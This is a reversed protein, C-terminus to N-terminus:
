VKLMAKYIYQKYVSKRNGFTWSNDFFPHHPFWISCLGIVLLDLLLYDLELKSITSVFMIVFGCFM